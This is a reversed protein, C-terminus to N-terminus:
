PRPFVFSMSFSVERTDKGGDRMYVIQVDSFADSKKMKDMVEIIDDEGNAKGSIIGNMEENLALSSTWIRGEEPFVRTIERLCDLVRPRRGYWGRADSVKDVVDRAADIDAQMGALTSKLGAVEGVDMKWSIVMGFLLVLLVGAVLAAARVHRKEIRGVKAEMRSNLFDVVSPSPVDFVSLALALSPGFPGIEEANASVGYAELFGAVPLKRAVIGRPLGGAMDASIKKLDESEHWFLMKEEEGEPASAMYASLARAIEPMSADGEPAAQNQFYKVTVIDEGTRVLLEACASGTFLAFRARAAPDAGRGPCFLSVSAISVSLLELGAGQVADVIQRMRKKLM